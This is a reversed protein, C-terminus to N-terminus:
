QHLYSDFFKPERRSIFHRSYSPNNIIDMGYIWKMELRSQYDIVIIDYISLKTRLRTRVYYCITLTNSSIYLKREYPKSFDNKNIKSTNRFTEYV